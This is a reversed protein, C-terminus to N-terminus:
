VFRFTLIAQEWPPRVRSVVARAVLGYLVHADQAGDRVHRDDLGGVVDRGFLQHARRRSWPGINRRKVRSATGTM